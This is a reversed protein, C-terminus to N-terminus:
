GNTSNFRSNVFSSETAPDFRRLRREGSTKLRGKPLALQEFEQMLRAALNEDQRLPVASEAALKAVLAKVFLPDYDAAEEKYAIFEIKAAEADTVLTRGEIEYDDEAQGEYEEGNLKVMRLFTTPLQYAYTWGFLPATSLQTLEARDKLCPWEALRGVERVAPEYLDRIVRAGKSGEEDYDMIRQAGVRHLAMNAIDTKTPM